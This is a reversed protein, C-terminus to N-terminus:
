NYENIDRIYNNATYDSYNKQYRLYKNFEIILNNM